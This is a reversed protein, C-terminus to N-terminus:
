YKSAEEKTLGKYQLFLQWIPKRFLIRSFLENKFWVSFKSRSFLISQPLILKDKNECLDDVTKRMWDEKINGMHYSYNKSTSLRWFGLNSVPKDLFHQESDGGLSYGSYRKLLKDFIIM